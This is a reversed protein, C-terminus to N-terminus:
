NLGFDCEKAAAKTNAAVLAKEKEVKDYHKGLWMFVPVFALMVLMMLLMGVVEVM